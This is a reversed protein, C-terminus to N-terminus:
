SRKSTLFDALTRAFTNDERRAYVLDQHAVDPDSHVVPKPMRTADAVSWAAQGVTGGALGSEFAFMPVDIDAAHRIPLNLFRTVETEAFGITAVYDLMLRNLTYWVWAGPRPGAFAEM